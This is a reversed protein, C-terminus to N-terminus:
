KDDSFPRFDVKRTSEIIHRNLEVLYRLIPIAEYRETNIAEVVRANFTECIVANTTKDRIVWSATKM